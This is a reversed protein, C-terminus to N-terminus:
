KTAEIRKYLQNVYDSRWNDLKKVMESLGFQKLGAILTEEVINQHNILWYGHQGTTSRLLKELESM